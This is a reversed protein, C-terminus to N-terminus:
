RESEMARAAHGFTLLEADDMDGVCFERTGLERILRPMM